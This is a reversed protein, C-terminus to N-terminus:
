ESAFLICTPSGTAVVEGTPRLAGSIADIAFAVITDTLENAVHLRNGGPAIKMFRPGRGGTPTWGLPSMRGTSPEIAFAGILDSGRNSVYVFRGSPHVEVEASTNAGVFSDPVSPAAQLPIVAGKTAEYQNLSLSSDLEYNIYVFPLTPHFSAHRPGAGPRTAVSGALQLKASAADFALTFVRDLGKDPALLFREAPDYVLHHPHSGTQEVKHPGPAGPLTLLDALPDLGGDARIPLAAVSGTAYNAVLLFRNSPDAVLHVPNRGGTSQRNLFSLAGTARDIRFASVVDMDGHVAYLFDKRRDFALYSPNVLDSVLQTQAWAGSASDIRYAVIGLGRAGRDKTTRCGVYAFRGLASAAALTATM